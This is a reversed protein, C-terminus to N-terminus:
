LTSLDKLKAQKEAETTLEHSVVYTKMIIPEQAAAPNERAANDPRAGGTAGSSFSTGGGAQNLASLLPGFMTVAGRTMVAEGGEANIMVGGQAHRPGEIMGGDGYNKGLSAASAGSAGGSGSGGEYQQAKIANIQQTGFYIAAAAAIGGLVPGVFPIIALSQYAQIAGQLMGITAQAIQTNKNKEFYKRKIKDEEEANGKVAALENQMEMQSVQAAQGIINNIGGLVKGGFELYDNLQLENIKKTDEAAKEKLLKIKDQLDQEIKLIAEADGEKKAKEQAAAEEAAAIDKKLAVDIIDRKNQYYNETGRVLVEGKIQLEKLENDYAEQQKDFEDKHQQEAIKSLEIGLAKKGDILAQDYEKQTILGKDLATKLAVKDKEWQNEKEKREKEYQDKIAKLSYEGIKDLVSKREQQRQEEKKKEDEDFKDKAEAKKKDAIKQVNLIAEQRNKEYKPSIDMAKLERIEADAQNQIEQQQRELEGNKQVATLDDQLKKAKELLQKDQNEKTTGDKPAEALGKKLKKDNEIAQTILKDGEAAFDTSQKQVKAINSGLDKINDSMMGLPNGLNKISNWAKDWFDPELGEGSVLKASAEASKAYFIQAQARLKISQIVVGTNEAMLKEAQELDGAYGVTKGLKDNYEKLADKKSVTGKRAGELAAKVEFLKVNFDTVDKTVQKQADDYARTKDTAGTIADSIEDWYAVLAALGALLFGIGIAKLATGLGITAVEAAETAVTEAEVAATHAETSATAEAEAVALTEVAAAEAETAATNAAQVENLGVLNKGIDGVDNATEKLQFSLDKLTFSSFTKLLEISGSLQGFFDGVPGPLLSLSTFLDKSKASTKALGDQVDGLRSSLIKFAEPDSTRRLEATLAKAQQQLNLTKDIAVDIAKGNIDYIIEIKKAAM